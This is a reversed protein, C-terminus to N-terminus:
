AAIKTAVDDTDCKGWATDRKMVSKIGGRPNLDIELVLRTPETAELLHHYIIDVVREYSVITNRFQFLYEKFSKLEITKKDAFFSIKIIGFDPQNKVGLFTFEPIEIYQEYGKAPNPITKITNEVSDWLQMNM